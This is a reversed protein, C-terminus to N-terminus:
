NQVNERKRLVLERRDLNEKHLKYDRIKRNYEEKQSEFEERESRTVKMENIKTFLLTLKENIERLVKEESNLDM